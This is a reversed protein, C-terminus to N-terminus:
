DGQKKMASKAAQMQDRLVSLEALLYKTFAAQKEQVRDFSAMLSEEYGDSLPMDMEERMSINLRALQRSYTATLRVADTAMSLQLESRQLVMTTRLERLEVANAITTKLVRVIDDIRQVDPHPLRSLSHVSDTFQSAQREAYAIQDEASRIKLTLKELEMRKPLLDFAAESFTEQADLLARITSLRAVGHMKNSPGMIAQQLTTLQAFPVEWNSIQSLYQLPKTVADAFELFVDRRLEFV